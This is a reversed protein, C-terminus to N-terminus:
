RSAAARITAILQAASGSPRSSLSSKPWSRPAKVPASWRRAPHKSSALPPVSSSSSIPSIFGLQLGLQQADDLVAFESADAPAAVDREVHPHQRGGIAIEAVRDELPAQSLVQIVPEIHEGDHQRSQGLTEFIQRRQDIMEHAVEGAGVGLLNATDIVGAQLGQLRARPGAVRTFQAVNDFAGHDDARAGQYGNGSRGM